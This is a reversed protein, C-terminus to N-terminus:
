KNLIQIQVDKDIKIVLINEFEPNDTEDVIEPGTEEIYKHKVALIGQEDRVAALLDGAGAYWGFGAIITDAPFGWSNDEISYDELLGIYEGIFEKKSLYGELVLYVKTIPIETNEEDYGYEFEWGIKLVKLEKPTPSNQLPSINPIVEETPDKEGITTDKPPILNDRNVPLM